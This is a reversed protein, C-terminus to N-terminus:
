ASGTAAVFESFARNTVPTEDIWFSDVKVRRLPREEPLRVANGDPRQGDIPLQASRRAGPLREAESTDIRRGRAHPYPSRLMKAHLMGPLSINVPYGRGGTVKDLADPRTVSQGILDAGGM